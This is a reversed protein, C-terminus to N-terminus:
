PQVAVSLPTPPTVAVSRGEVGIPSIASVQVQTNSTAALARFTVAALAGPVNAGQTGQRTETAVIQGNSHDIRSSFNTTTGDQKLFEGPSIAIAELAAPDYSISYPISVLPQDPQITLMVTFSEGVKSRDPGQWLLTTTTAAAPTPAGQPTSAGSIPTSLGVAPSNTPNKSVPAAAAPAAEPSTAPSATSNTGPAIIRFSTETGSEFESDTLPPRQLNRILHPTISLVIETKLTDNRQSGFLRGLLPIDGLAPLKNGTQRDEDNILGALVQNEGDRLRLVTSATRTGIQYALTGSKTQVQDVISSVELSLKIATENDPFITPQVDLKLGVDVYQVTESVFGTATATSTINPVRQGILIKATERSRTRIRPNALLNTDGDQKKLNATMPSLTAQVQSASLRRLDALTVNGSEGALPALALQEPWRVGLELLRTRTVEMIEVELMVEPEPLDHLAMLKEALRVAEPTDRMVLMNQREDVVLDKTKLITKITNAANKADANSLFFTKVSLPQYDRSKAPTNPYILISNKDLVRQELQNTILVLNVADQVTSDRLFITTKQDARVDKDFVFNLGSTRSLVEFVQQLSTDKFEISLPKKLGASLKTPIQLQAGQQQITQRLALASSHQPSETLVTRLHGLAAESDGVSWAKDAQVMLERLRTQRALGDLSAKARANNTELALVHRYHREATETEGRSLAQDGLTLWNTIARERSRLFSIRYEANGPDALTATHLQELGEEIHGQAILSLGERHALQGACGFLLAFVTLALAIRYFTMPM